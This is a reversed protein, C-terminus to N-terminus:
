CYGTILIDDDIIKCQISDLRIIESMVSVGKGAVANLSEEGGMIAPAIFAHVKDVLNQDFFSGILTPGGEILISSISLEGLHELLSQIDVRNDINSNPFIKTNVFEPLDITKDSTTAIITPNNDKIVNSDLPIRLNSDLIVRMPNKFNGISSDRVTLFPNDVIVTGVGVMVADSVARMNHAEIRSKKNTIWKSEGSNTSVKGDLTSAFKVTVFPIGTKMLKIHAEMQRSSDKELEGIHIEIGADKLKSIGLGNVRPDPDIISIMVQTIGSEIIKDVCPPTRGYHCCPELTVYLTADVAKTGADKIAEIEAHPSGLSGTWGKGVIEGDKIIIAGVPPNPHSVGISNHSVKLAIEMPSIDPM